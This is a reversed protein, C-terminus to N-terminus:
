TWMTTMHGKRGSRSGEAPDTTSLVFKGDDDVQYSFYISLFDDASIEGIRRGM